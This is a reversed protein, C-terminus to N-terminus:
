GRKRTPEVIKDYLHLEKSLGDVQQQLGSNETELQEIHDLLVWVITDPGFLTRLHETTYTKPIQERHVVVSENVTYEGM